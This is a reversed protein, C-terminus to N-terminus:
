NARFVEDLKAAFERPHAFFGGHGGPFTVPRTGLRDALALATEHALQGSANEGIGVAVRSSAARLAAADPVYDTIPLLYHALFFEVNQQM